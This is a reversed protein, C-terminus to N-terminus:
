RRLPFLPALSFLPDRTMCAGSRAACLFFPSQSELSPSLKCFPHPSASPPPPPAEPAFDSKCYSFFIAQAASFGSLEFVFPQSYRKSRDKCPFSLGSICDGPSLWCTQSNLPDDHPSFAKIPPLFSLPFCAFSLSPYFFLGMKSLFKEPATPFPCANRSFVAADLFYSFMHTIRKGLSGM